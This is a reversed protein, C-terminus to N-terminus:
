QQKLIKSINGLREVASQDIGYEPHNKCAESIPRLVEALNNISKSLNRLENPMRTMYEKELVTIM